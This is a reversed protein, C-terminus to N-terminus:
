LGSVPRRLRARVEQAAGETTKSRGTASNKLQRTKEEDQRTGPQTLAAMRESRQFTASFRWTSVLWTGFSEGAGVTPLTRPARGQNPTPALSVRARPAGEAPQPARCDLHGRPCGPPGGPPTQPETLPKGM